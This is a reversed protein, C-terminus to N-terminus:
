FGPSWNLEPSEKRIEYCKIRDGSKFNISTDELMIGCDNDHSVVMTEEKLHKLSALPGDYIISKERIIRFSKKIHYVDCHIRANFAIPVRKIKM